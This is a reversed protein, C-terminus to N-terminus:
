KKLITTELETLVEKKGGIIWEDIESRIFFLRGNTPQYYPITRLTCAKYVWSSSFGYEECLVKLSIFQKM